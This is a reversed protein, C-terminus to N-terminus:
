KRINELNTFLLRISNSVVFITSSNHLVAGWFVPLVGAASFVLGLSNIGIVLGFNQKVVSMTKKSLNMIAPLTMPDDSQITIDATEIAADTCSGGLSIGVNSYALAPADNIGDGVMIVKSNKSQLKLITKAKDEPLLEAKYGDIGMKKAVIKAQEKLDGTLLLIEDVGQYRINNLSKKMNERMKDQIGIIGLLKNNKAVYIISQGKKKLDRVEDNLVDVDIDNEQLFLRNGVRVIDEEINTEVGKAVHTIIEGHQPVEIGQMRAKSLIANAMPHSSTEEATAAIAILEKCSVDDVTVMDLVEPKGQTLTGTKDLILTDAEALAEIYNGGKILVGNRVATNIAASFATATSLKIGCSYDIIMMNLARTMSKTAIYTAGALVFNFPILYNSFKDAYDQIKAKNYAADEVLNIIRSVVTNDGARQTEVIINGNKVLTGSFVESGVKKIDPMYEGTVASQDVIAEGNIVIGDVCIKEGTHVVIKYGVKVDDVLIRRVSGNEEQKWVYDENLDMMHKISERTKKMTYSTMFEAIDSLLIITLASTGKGTLISALISSITLTDANPKKTKLLGGIGDNFLSKTLYVAGIAPVSLFRKYIPDTASIENKKTALSYGILSVNIALRKAIDKVDEERERVIINSAEEKREEKYAYLSYSSLVETVIKMLDDQDIMNSDYNILINKTINNISAKKIIKTDLLDRLIEENFENLYRLARCNLRIRGTLSHKIVLKFLDQKKVFM